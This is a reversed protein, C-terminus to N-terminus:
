PAGPSYKMQPQNRKNEVSAFFNAVSGRTLSFIVPRNKNTMTRLKTGDKLRRIRIQAPRKRLVSCPKLQHEKTWTPSFNPECYLDWLNPLRKLHHNMLCLLLHFTKNKKPFDLKFKETLSPPTRPESGSQNESEFELCAPVLTEATPWSRSETSTKKRKTIGHNKEIQAALTQRVFVHSKSMTLVSNHKIHVFVDSHRFVQTQQFASKTQHRITTLPQEHM